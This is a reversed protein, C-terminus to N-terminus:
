HAFNRRLCVAELAANVIFTTEGEHLLTHNYVM